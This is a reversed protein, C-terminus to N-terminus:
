QPAEQSEDEEFTPTAFMVLVDGTSVQDGPAVRVAAITAAGNARLSHLMKMAEIVVLTQDGDVVDGSQVLVESVVAPFPAVIADGTSQRTEREPAWHESRTPVRFSYTYGLHNIAVRRQALDVVAPTTPLEGIDVWHGLSTSGREHDNVLHVSRYGPRPTLSFSSGIWPSTNPTAEDVARFWAGGAALGVFHNEEIIRPDDSDEQREKRTPGDDPAANDDLFRTTVRGAVVPDQDLLWRHFGATTAVGDIILHDLAQRMKALAENRNAGHVILKAIMSDYHPTIETGPEIAADWRVNPPVQVQRVTGIQPVFGNASDEALIRAEIAHGSFRLQTPDLPLREGAAIRIMLEVLDLGTIMETVPHEVQLRTNMELFYHQGTEDDVIFEVTGASDYGVAKALVRASERIGRRTEPALNPAPAEELLKQYRRQVSCERTGLEAVAGHKDAIIQVEIHRPRQIYREVIVDADGFANEAEAAAAQRATEFEAPSTAIRIGKGGGGASAKILVPFGIQEAAQYLAGPQQSGSWGPITPVGAAEAIKRAEIKSGMSAIVDPNPGIWILGYQACTTALQANEALFGYGPHIAHAGSRTAASMIREVSLYSDALSAPGIKHAATAEAVYPAHRDPEAFVAVTEHGLRHATRIIRRAIEGRNAVLIRM